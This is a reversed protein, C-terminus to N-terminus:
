WRCILVGAIPFVVYKTKDINIAIRNCNLWKSIQNLHINVDSGFEKFAKVFNSANDTITAVIQEYTIAFDQQIEDLHEAIKSYTHAGQFRM